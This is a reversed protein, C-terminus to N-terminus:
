LKVFKHRTSGAATQLTLYYIGPLLHSVQLQIMNQGRMDGYYRNLLAKGEQNHLLLTVATYKSSGLTVTLVSTAPNPYITAGNKVAPPKVAQREQQTFYAPHIRNGSYTGNDCAEIDADFFSTTVLETEFGPLLDVYNGALYKVFGSTVSSTQSLDVKSSAIVANSARVTKNPIFVPNTIYVTNACATDTSGCSPIVFGAPWPNAILGNGLDTNGEGVGTSCDPPISFPYSVTYNFNNNQWRSVRGVSAINGPQTPATLFSNFHSNKLLPKEAENITSCVVGPFLSLYFSGQYYNNFTCNDFLTRRGNELSVLYNGYMRKGKYCDQFLTNIFKVADADNTADGYTLAHGYISCSDFVFRNASLSMSYYVSGVFRCKKFLMNYPIVDPTGTSVGANHEFRCNVFTGNTCNAGNEPEIDLGMGPATIITGRGSYSASCNNMYLSDGGVWSVANRGSYNMQVDDMYIRKMKVTAGMNWFTAADLAMDHINLRNMQVDACDVFFLGYAKLEICRTGCNWNGGLICGNTNGDMELDNVTIGNCNRFLFFNSLGATHQYYPPYNINGPCNPNPTSSCCGALYPPNYANLNAPVTGEIDNSIDFTGYRFGNALKMKASGVSAGLIRVNSCNTLTFVDEAFYAAPQGDPGNDGALYTQKGVRYTGAPIILDVGGGLGQIYAAADTFAKHDNAIGDGVAFFDTKINKVINPPSAHAQAVPVLWLLLIIFTKM